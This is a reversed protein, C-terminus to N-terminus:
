AGKLADLEAKLETVAGILKMILADQSIGKYSDDVEQTVAETLVRGKPGTVAPTVEVTKTRHIDKVISPCVEEAEQAILGLQRQSRIEENLPAQDNWDYNKLLGGLAVVDALQPKAPTINEKFRADSPPVVTATVTGSFSASGDTLVKFTTNTGYVLKYAETTAGETSPRQAFFRGTSYVKSGANTASSTDFNGVDVNGAFEASGDGRIVAMGDSGAFVAVDGSSDVNRYTKLLGPLPSGTNSLGIRTGYNDGELDNPSEPTSLGAVIVDGAFTASGDAYLKTTDSGSDDRIKLGTWTANDTGPKPQAEFNTSQVAGAFSASGNANLSINPSAPLAGALLFNGVKDFRAREAYEASGTRTHFVFASRYQESDSVTGIDWWCSNALANRAMMRILSPSQDIANKQDARIVNSINATPNYPDAIVGSLLSFDVSTEIKGAATISGGASISSTLTNNGKLWGKWIYEDTGDRCVDISGSFDRDPGGNILVGEANGLYADGESRIGGAATISGDQNLLITATNSNYGFMTFSGNSATYPKIELAGAVVKGASELGGAATISGDGFIQVPSNSGNYVNFVLDKDSPSGGFIQILGYTSGPGILSIKPTNIQGAATISGDAAFGVARNKTGDVDSYLGLVQDSTVSTKRYLVHGSDSSAAEVKGNANLTINPASPLGGLTTTGDAKVAFTVSTNGETFGTYIYRSPSSCASVQRTSLKTGEVGTNPDGAVQVSAAATISGDAKLTIKDTGLTLDGTMNDGAVLVYRLDLDDQTGGSAVWGGNKYTYTVGNSPDFHTQGETPNPPFNLAM